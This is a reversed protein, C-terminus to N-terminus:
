LVYRSKDGIDFHLPMRWKEIVLWTLLLAALVLLYPELLAIHFMRCLVSGLLLFPVLNLGKIQFCFSEKVAFMAAALYFFALSFTELIHVSGSEKLVYAFSLLMFGIWAMFPIFWRFKPDYLHVDAAALAIGIAFFPLYFVGLIELGIIREISYLLTTLAVISLGTRYLVVTMRDLPEMDPTHKPTAM